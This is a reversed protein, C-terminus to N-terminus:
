AENGMSLIGLYISEVLQEERLQDGWLAPRIGRFRRQLFERLVRMSEESTVRGMDHMIGLARYTCFGGQCPGMGLRTRHQIDGIYKTGIRNVVREVEDRSVLECECIIGSIDKLRKSLPYGSLEDQGDLPKEATQCPTDLGFERMIADVMKEAMLRYTTLKGGLISYMGNGHDIIRFGRSIARSDGGDAQLL